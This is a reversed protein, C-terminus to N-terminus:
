VFTNKFAIYAICIHINLYIGCHSSFTYEFVIDSEVSTNEFLTVSTDEFLRMQRWGVKGPGMQRLKYYELNCSYAIINWIVAWWFFSHGLFTPGIWIDNDVIYDSKPQGM